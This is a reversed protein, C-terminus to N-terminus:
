RGVYMEEVDNSNYIKKGAALIQKHFTSSKAKRYYKAHEM